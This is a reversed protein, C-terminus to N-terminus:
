WVRIFLSKLYAVTNEGIFPPATIGVFLRYSSKCIKRRVFVNAGSNSTFLLASEYVHKYWAVYSVSVSHQGTGLTWRYLTFLDRM